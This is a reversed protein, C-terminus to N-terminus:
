ICVYIYIYTNFNGRNVLTLPIVYGLIDTKIYVQLNCLRFLSHSSDKSLPFPLATDKPFASDSKVLAEMLTVPSIVQPKLVGKQANIVSQILLYFNCQVANMANNVRLIHGEVEIKTSFLYIKENTESKLTNIYKTIRNIGKKL